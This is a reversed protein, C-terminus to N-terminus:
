RHRAATRERQWAALDREVDEPAVGSESAAQRMDDFAKKLRRQRAQPSAKLLRIAEEVEARSAANAVLGLFAEYRAREAPDRLRQAVSRDLRLTVEVTDM